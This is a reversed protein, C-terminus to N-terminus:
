GVGWTWGLVGALAERGRLLTASPLARVEGGCCCAPGMMLRDDM